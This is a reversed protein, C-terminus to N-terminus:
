MFDYITTNRIITKETKGLDRKIEKQYIKMKKMCDDCLIMGNFGKCVKFTKCGDCKDRFKMM